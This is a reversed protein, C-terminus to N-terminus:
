AKAPRVKYRFLAMSFITAIVAIAIGILFALQYSETLDFIVGALTAGLSGGITGVLMVSGFILGLSKLGFLEATVMSALPNTGGVAVGFIVAFLYFTWIEGAFLLWILSLLVLGVCASLAIRGGTRDAIFGVSLNGFITSIAIVSMISAAAMESIGGDVAYSVIHVLVLQMCFLFGAYIPALLWFRRSRVAGKFSTGSGVPESPSASKIVDQRYDEPEVQVPNPRLFYALPIIGIGVLGLVFLSQRWGDSSIITQAVLPFVVGGVGMGATAIGLVLGRREKFWRPISSLIPTNCCSAGVGMLLGWLLYIQWLSDVRSMLLLGSAILIGGIFVLPRSGYRDTLRGSFIGSVGIALICMSYAGSLMGRGWDFQETLPVLFIGFTNIVIAQIGMAAAGVFAFVWGYNLRKSGM